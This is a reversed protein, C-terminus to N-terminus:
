YDFLYQEIHLITSYTILVINKQMFYYLSAMKEFLLHNMLVCVLYIMWIVSMICMLICEITVCDVYEYYRCKQKNEPKNADFNDNFNNFYQKIM